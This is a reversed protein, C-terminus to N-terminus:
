SEEIAPPQEHEASRKRLDVAFVLQVGNSLLVPEGVFLASRVNYGGHASVKGNSVQFDRRRLKVARELRSEGLRWSTQQQAPVVRTVLRLLRLFGRTELHQDVVLFDLSELHQLLQVQAARMAACRKGEFQWNGIAVNAGLLVLALAFAHIAMDRGPDKFMEPDVQTVYDFDDM